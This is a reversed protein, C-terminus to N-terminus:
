TGSRELLVSEVRALGWLFLREFALSLLVIVVTWALLEATSFLIKANYLAEGISGSTIGIVEAAVGSKWCLGLGVTCASRFYPLAAPVYLYRVRKAPPVRFVAAMELLRADTERIGALTNTYVVPLVMLFSIFVALNGASRLWMLALIIFSAVPISKITLMLPRLLVEVWRLAAALATMAALVAPYLLLAAGKGGLARLERYFLIGAALFLALGLPLSAWVPRAAGLIYAIFAAHALGFVAVGAAFSREILFDAACCLTLALVLLWGAAGSGYLVAGLVATAVAVFTAGCKAASRWLSVGLPRTAAYVAFFAAMLPLSLAAWVSPFDKM